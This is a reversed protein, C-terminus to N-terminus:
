ARSFRKAINNRVNRLWGNLGLVTNWLLDNTATLLMKAGRSRVTHEWRIGHNLIWFVPGGFIRFLFKQGRENDVVPKNIDLHVARTALKQRAYTLDERCHAGTGDFGMNKVLTAPPFICYKNEIFLRNSATIDDAVLSGRLVERSLRITHPLTRNAAQFLEPTSLVRGAVEQQHEYFAPRDSWTGYGWATFCKLYLQSADTSPFDPYLYGCVALIDKHGAFARLGANVFTLFDTSFFIDDEAFLYAPHKAAVAAVVDAQVRGNTNEKPAFVIVEKFGSINAIIDRVEAVAAQDTESRPGDSSIYLVTESAGDNTALSNVCTKFHEPRNYVTLIIPSWEPIAMPNKHAHSM